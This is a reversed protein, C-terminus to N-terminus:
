EEGNALTTTGALVADLADFSGSWGMTMGAREAVFTAIEEPASAGHVDFRVTVRTEAPGEEAFVVTVLTTEPWTPAGPQRSVNWHEDTFTQLYELRYPRRMNLYAHRAYMTFEGNTMSFTADGGTRIDAHKFAMTFGTPPLWAAIHAPTTWLDFVTSIPAAFSRNVVFIEQSSQAKEVFEALRDWTANGGAAKVFTRAQQAAEPTPLTMRFDLETKGQLDRFNATVRFMPEVDSSAGHDYVLRARPEVEHYRTFNPYDTGDPGHMTFMWSGGPRVESSHTTITFGRPGWWQAVQAPDTWAEWVLAVPADYIRTIRIENASTTTPMPTTSPTTM